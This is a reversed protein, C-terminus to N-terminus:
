YQRNSWSQKMTYTTGTCAYAKIPLIVQVANLQECKTTYVGSTLPRATMTERRNGAQVTTTSTGRLPTKGGCATQKRTSFRPKHAGRACMTVTTVLNRKEEREGKQQKQGNEKQEHILKLLERHLQAKEKIFGWEALNFELKPITKTKTKAIANAMNAYLLKFWKLRKEKPKLGLVWAEIYLHTRKKDQKVKNRKWKRERPASAFAKARM